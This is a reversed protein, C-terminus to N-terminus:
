LASFRRRYHLNTLAVNDADSDAHESVTSSKTRRSTQLLLTLLVEPYLHQLSTVYM